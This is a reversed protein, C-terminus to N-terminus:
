PVIVSIIEFERRERESDRFEVLNEADLLRVFARAHRIDNIKDDDVEIIIKM